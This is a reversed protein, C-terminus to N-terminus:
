FLSFHHIADSCHCRLKGKAEVCTSIHAYTGTCEHVQVCVFKCVCTVDFSEGCFRLMTHIYNVALLM